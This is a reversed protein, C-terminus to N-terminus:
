TRLVLPFPFHELCSSFIVHLPFSLSCVPIVLYLDVSKTIVAHCFSDFFFLQSDLLNMEFRPYFAAKTSLSFRYNNMILLHM